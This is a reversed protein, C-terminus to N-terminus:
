EHRSGSTLKGVWDNASRAPLFRHSVGKLITSRESMWANWELRVVEFPVPFGPKRHQVLDVAHNLNKWSITEIQDRPTQLVLETEESYPHRYNVAHLHFRVKWALLPDFMAATCAQVQDAGANLLEIVNGATAIGGVAIIKYEHGLKKRLRVLLRVGRATIDFTCPGSLGGYERGPFAAHKRGDRDIAVPRVRITNRFAIADVHRGVTEVVSSLKTEVVLPLKVILAIGTGTLLKKARLCFEELREPEQSLDGVKKELNPCSGNLEIFPPCLSRASSIGVELDSLASDWDNGDAVISIGVHKGRPLRLIREYIAQWEEKSESPIGMSNVLDPIPMGLSASRVYEVVVDPPNEPDYGALEPAETVFAIQPADWSRKYGTRRTKFTSLGYGLGLMLSTWTEDSLLPSSSLGLPCDSQVDNFICSISPPPPASVLWKLDPAGTEQKQEYSRLHDLAYVPQYTQFQSVDLGNALATRIVLAVDDPTSPRGGELWRNVTNRDHDLVSATKRRSSHKVLAQVLPTFRIIEHWEM